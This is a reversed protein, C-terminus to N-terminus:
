PALISKLVRQGNEWRYLYIPADSRRGAADFTITDAPMSGHQVNHREAVYRIAAWTAEYAAVAYLGPPAAFSGQEYGQVFESRRQATWFEGTVDDVQALGTAFYTGDARGATVRYFQNLGWLSGGLLVEHDSAAEIATEASGLVGGDSNLALTPNVHNERSWQQVRSEIEVESPSLNYIGATSALDKDCFTILPLGADQYVPLAAETTEDLWHGVVVEVEPDIVLNRAQDIAQDADGADDYAVLEIIITSEQQEEAWERIALRAGPIVDDGIERYRGEFPAVLGIKVVQPATRICGALLPLLIGLVCGFSGAARWKSPVRM